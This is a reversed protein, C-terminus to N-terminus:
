VRVGLAHVAYWVTWALLGAAVFCAGMVPIIRVSFAGGTLLATGYLLLWTGPLLSLMGARVLVFTLVLAAGFPPLYSLLFRRAPRTLFYGEARRVKLVMAGIGIGGALAAEALWIALWERSSASRSALVSAGIATLGMAVGGWGPVGPLVLLHEMEPPVEGGYDALLRAATERIYRAKQRFFGTPRVLAEMEDPDAAALDEVTPYRAFLAPTTLNVREDTCQASLIVAVLLQVPTQYDLACHADPYAARLRGILESVYAASGPNLEENLEM